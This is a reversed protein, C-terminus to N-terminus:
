QRKKNRRTKRLNRKGGRKTGAKKSGVAIAHSLNNIKFILNTTQCFYMFKLLPESRNKNVNEVYKSLLEFISSNITMIIKHNTLILFALTIINDKIINITQNSTEEIFRLYDRNESKTKVDKNIHEFILKINTSIAVCNEIQADTPPNIYKKIDELLHRVVDIDIIIKKEQSLSEHNQIINLLLDRKQYFLFLLILYLASYKKELLSKKSIFGSLETIKTSIEGKKQFLAIKGGKPISKLEILNANITELKPIIEENFRHIYEKKDEEFKDKLELNKTRLMEAIITLDSVLTAIFDENSEEEKFTANANSSEANANSSEEFKKFNKKWCIVCRDANDDNVFGCELCIKKDTNQPSMSIKLQSTNKKTKKNGADKLKVQVKPNQQLENSSEGPMKEIADTMDQMFSAGSTLGYNSASTRGSKDDDVEAVAELNEPKNSMKELETKLSKNNKRLNINADNLASLERQKEEIALEITKLKEIQANKAIIDIRQNEVKRALENFENELEQAGSMEVNIDDIIQQREGEFEDKDLIAFNENNSKSSIDAVGVFKGNMQNLINLMIVKTVLSEERRKGFLPEFPRKGDPDNNHIIQNIISFPDNGYSKIFQSLDIQTGYNSLNNPDLKWFAEDGGGAITAADVQKITYKLLDRIEIAFGQERGGVGGYMKMTKKQKKRLSKQTKNKVM